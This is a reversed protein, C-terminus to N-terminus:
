RCFIDRPQSNKCLLDIAQSQQTHINLLIEYYSDFWWFNRFHHSLIKKHQHDYSIWLFCSSLNLVHILEGPM